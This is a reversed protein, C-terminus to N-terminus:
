TGKSLHLIVRYLGITRICCPNSSAISDTSALWSALKKHPTQNKPPKCVSCVREHM